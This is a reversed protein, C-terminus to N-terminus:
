GPIATRLSGALGVDLIKASSTRVSHGSRQADLEGAIAGPDQLVTAELRSRVLRFYAAFEQVRYSQVPSIPDPTVVHFREPAAAQVAQLLESYLALQLITGGRTEKALKTDVVEYSRPGFASPTEV